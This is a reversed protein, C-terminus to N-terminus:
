DCQPPYSLVRDSGAIRYRWDDGGYYGEGMGWRACMCNKCYQQTNTNPDQELQERLEKSRPLWYHRKM